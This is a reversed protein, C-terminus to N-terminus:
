RTSGASAEKQSCVKVNWHVLREVDGVVGADASGDGRQLVQEVVPGLHKQGRVQHAAITSASPDKNQDRADRGRGRESHELASGLALVLVLVLLYVIQASM